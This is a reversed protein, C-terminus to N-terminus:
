KRLPLTSKMSAPSGRRVPLALPKRGAIDPIMFHKVNWATTELRIFTSGAAEGLVIVASPRIRRIAQKLRSPAIVSDVPLTRFRIEPLLKRLELLALSSANELRGDFPGFATVLVPM